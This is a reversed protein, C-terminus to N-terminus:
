KVTFQIWLKDVSKDWKINKKFEKWAEDSLAEPKTLSAGAGPIADTRIVRGKTKEKIAQLLKEAPHEWEMEENAWKENVPIM